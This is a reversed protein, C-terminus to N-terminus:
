TPGKFPENRFVFSATLDRSNGVVQSLLPTVFSWRMTTRVVVVESSQGPQFDTPQPNGEADYLPPVSVSSFDPFSRVDFTIRGCDIMGSVEGCLRNRFTTLPDASQQAQGTRVQRAAERTAGDLIAGDVAMLGLEVTGCVLLFFPVAVAAFELGVSGRRCAFASRRVPQTTRPATKRWLRTRAELKMM